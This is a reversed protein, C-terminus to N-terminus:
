VAQRSNRGSRGQRLRALATRLRQPDKLGPATEFRSNLDVGVLGPLHLETLEVAHEPGLGGALLYPTTLTYNRLLEWDFTLGNGGRAPGHTDFLFYDCSGEYPRLSELELVKGVSFSKIVLYGAARLQACQAPTEQGHLQAGDLGFSALTALVRGIPEDVFVGITRVSAPLARLLEPRLTAGAYRSSPPYFIFGLFDPELDAVAAINASERM